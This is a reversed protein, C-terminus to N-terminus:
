IQLDLEVVQNPKIKEKYNLPMRLRTKSECFNPGQKAKKEIWDCCIKNWKVGNIKERSDQKEVVKKTKRYMKVHM